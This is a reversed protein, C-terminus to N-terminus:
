IIYKVELFACARSPRTENMQEWHYAKLQGFATVIEKVKKMQVLYAKHLSKFLFCEFSAGFIQYYM